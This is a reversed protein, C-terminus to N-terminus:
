VYSIHARSSVWAEGEEEEGDEGEDDDEDGNSATPSVRNKEENAAKAGKNEEIDSMLDDKLQDKAEVDAEAGSETRATVGNAPMDDDSADDEAHIM